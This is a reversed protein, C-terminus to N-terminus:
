VAGLAAALDDLSERFADPAIAPEGAHRVIVTTRGAHAVFTVTVAGGDGDPPGYVIREPAVVERHTAGPALWRSSARRFAHFVRERPADIVRSVVVENPPAPPPTPLPQGDDTRAPVTSLVRV